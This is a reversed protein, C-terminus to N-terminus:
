RAILLSGACRYAVISSKAVATKGSCGTAAPREPPGIVGFGTARAGTVASAGVSCTADAAAAGVVGSGDTRARVAGAARGADFRDDLAPGCRPCHRRRRPLQPRSMSPPTM